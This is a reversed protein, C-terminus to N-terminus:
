ASVFDLSESDGTFYNKGDSTRYPTASRIQHAMQRWGYIREQTSEGIEEGREYCRMGLHFGGLIIGVVLGM